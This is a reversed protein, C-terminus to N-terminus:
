TLPRVVVPQLGPLEGLATLAQEFFNVAEHNASRATAIQGSKKWYGVAEAAAGAAAFHRAAVEPLREVM